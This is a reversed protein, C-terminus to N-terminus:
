IKMILVMCKKFFRRCFHEHGMSEFLEELKCFMRLGTPLAHSYRCAVASTFWDVPM